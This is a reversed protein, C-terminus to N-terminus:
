ILIHRRKTNSTEILTSGNLLIELQELNIINVNNTNAAPWTLKDYEFRKYFLSFGNSDWHLIKVKDKTKGCFVFYADAFPDLKFSLQVTAALGDVSKRMDTSGCALFVKANPNHNIM